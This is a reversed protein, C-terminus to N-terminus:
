TYFNPNNQVQDKVPTVAGRLRWDVHLPLSHSTVPPQASVGRAGASRNGRFGNMASVFEYHLLDGFQNMELSYSHSGAKGATNFHKNHTEIRARNDLWIKMRMREEESYGAAAKDGYKREYMKGHRMKWTEWEEVDDMTSVTLSTALVCILLAVLM